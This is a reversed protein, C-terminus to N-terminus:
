RFIRNLHERLEAVAKEADPNKVVNYCAFTPLQKMGIFQQMKHLHFLAEDVSKGEFFDDERNFATEPANWTVSFMYHKETFQGGQGYRDSGKFFINDMYVQDIYHKFLGPISFWYIPTQFIVADAWEWKKIEEQVDYGMQVTTEKLSFRENLTERMTQFLTSNLKGKSKSYYEHGNVILIKKM